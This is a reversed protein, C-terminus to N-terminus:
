PCVCVCSISKKYFRIKREKSKMTRLATSKQRTDDDEDDDHNDNDEQWKKDKTKKNPWFVPHTPAFVLSFAKINYFSNLIVKM